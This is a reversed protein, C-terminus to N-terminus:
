SCYDEIPFSEAVDRTSVIIDLAMQHKKQFDDSSTNVYHDAGLRKADAEKGESHSFAYVEAGLAKAFM